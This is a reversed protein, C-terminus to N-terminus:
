ERGVQPSSIAPISLRCCSRSDLNSGTNMLFPENDGVEDVDDDDDPEYRFSRTGRM